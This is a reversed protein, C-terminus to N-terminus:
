CGTPRASTAVRRRLKEKQFQWKESGIPRNRSRNEGSEGSVKGKPAPKAPIEKLAKLMAWRPDVRDTKKKEKIVPAPRGCKVCNNQADLDPLPHLNYNLIVQEAIIHDLPIDFVDPGLKVQYDEIGQDEDELWDLGKEKRKGILLNFQTEFPQDLKDLCRGCDLSLIGRVEGRALYIEEALPTVDVHAHVKGIAGSELLEPLESANAELDLEVPEKGLTDFAINM